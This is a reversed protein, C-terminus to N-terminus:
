VRRRHERAEPLPLGSRTLRDELIIDVARLLLSDPLSVRDALLALMRSYTVGLREALAEQGGVIEAAAQLLKVSTASM